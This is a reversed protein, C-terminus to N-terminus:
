DRKAGFVIDDWSPMSARGRTVAPRRPPAAGEPEPEAPPPDTVAASGPEPQGDDPGRSAEADVPSDTASDTPSAPPHAAPPDDM